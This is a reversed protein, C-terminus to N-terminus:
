WGVGADTGASKGKIILPKHKGGVGQVARRWYGKKILWEASKLKKLELKGCFNRPKNGKTQM